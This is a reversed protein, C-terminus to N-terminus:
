KGIKGRAIPQAVRYFPEKVRLGRRWFWSFWGLFRVALRPM